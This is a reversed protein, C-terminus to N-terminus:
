CFCNMYMTNYVLNFIICVREEDEVTCPIDAYTDFSYELFDTDEMLHTLNAHSSVSSSPGDSVSKEETPTGSPM